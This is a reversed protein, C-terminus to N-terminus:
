KLYYGMGRIVAKGDDSELWNIISRASHEQPLDSRVVAYYGDTLSYSGDAISEKSPIVGEFSLMKLEDDIGTIDGVSQLYTYLTYGLAYSNTPAGDIGGKHHFAVQELMGTMTLEVYNEKISEHMKKDKLVLNDMQSQSGSDANRSIPILERDPGGMESWNKIGNELYIKRVQDLTINEAKNEKPTIFVLAELAVPYFELEIGKDEAFTLIESSAYPVIIMDVEGDILLKYSPVTKSAIEPFNDNENSQYMTENIERVIELTSTSGDIKPYNQHTIGLQYAVDSMINKSSQSNPKSDNNDTIKVADTTRTTEITDSSKTCSVISLILILILVFSSVRRM